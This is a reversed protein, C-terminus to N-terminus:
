FKFEDGDEYFLDIDNELKSQKAQEQAHFKVRETLQIVQSMSFLQAYALPLAGRRHLDALTGEGLQNLAQQNICHLGQMHLSAQKDGWTLQLPWPEILGAESLVQCAATTLHRNCESQKLFSLTQEVQNALNGKEGFLPEASLDDTLHQREICFVKKNTEAKALTFPYERLSAPVYDGLWRGDRHLYLNCENFGLVAVPHYGENQYIFGLVYHPVLSALEELLIPALHYEASFFYGQRSWFRKNVHQTRSIAIWELM